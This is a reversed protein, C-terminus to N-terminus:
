FEIRNKVYKQVGETFPKVVWKIQQIGLWCDTPKKNRYLNTHINFYQQMKATASRPNGTPPRPGRLPPQPGGLRSRKSFKAHWFTLIQVRLPPHAGPAGRRSGGISQIIFYPISSTYWDSQNWLLHTVKFCM